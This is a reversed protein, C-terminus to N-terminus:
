ALFAKVEDPLTVPNFPKSIVGMAGQQIYGDTEKGYVKATMFVVPIGALEPDARLEALTNPGDLEPMMVDLLIIDPSRGGGVLERAKTIGARGHEAMSVEFGGLSALSMEAITRIDDEDDILLVHPM